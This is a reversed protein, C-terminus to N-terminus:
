LVDNQFDTFFDFAKNEQICLNITIVNAIITHTYCRATVFLYFQVSGPRRMWRHICILPQEFKEVEAAHGIHFGVCHQECSLSEAAGQFELLM